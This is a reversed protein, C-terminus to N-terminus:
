SPNRGAARRSALGDDVAARLEHLSFPKALYSAAGAALAHQRTLDSARGMCVVIPPTALPAVLALADARGDFPLDLIILDAWRSELLASAGALDVAVRVAYGLRELYRRCTTALDPEDVM